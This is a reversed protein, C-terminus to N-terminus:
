RGQSALTRALFPWYAAALKEYHPSRRFAEYAVNVDKMKEPNGGRDPHHKMAEARWAKRFENKTRIKRLESPIAAGVHPSSSGPRAHQSYQGGSRSAKHAANRFANLIGKARRRGAPHSLGVAAAAAAGLGLGQAVRKATTPEKAKAEKKIFAEIKRADDRSIKSGQAMNAKGMAMVGLRLGTEQLAFSPLASRNGDRVYDAKIAAPVIKAVATMGELAVQTALIRKIERKDTPPIDAKDVAKMGLRATNVTRELSPLASLAAMGAAYLPKGEGVFAGSLFGAGIGAGTEVANLGAPRKGLVGKRSMEYIYSAGPMQRIKDTGDSM